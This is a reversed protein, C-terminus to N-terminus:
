LGLDGAACAGEKYEQADKLADDIAEFFAKLNGAAEISIDVKVTDGTAKNMLGRDESIPFPSICFEEKFKFAPTMDEPLKVKFYIYKTDDKVVMEELEMDVTPFSDLDFAKHTPPEVRAKKAVPAPSAM